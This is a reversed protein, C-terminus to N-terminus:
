AFFIPYRSRIETRRHACHPCPQLVSCVRLIPEEDQLLGILLEMFTDLREWIWKRIQKAADNGGPSLKGSSIIVVFVRYLSYIIKSLDKPDSAGQALNLLDLLANLSTNNAVAATIQTELEKELSAKRRKAPPPLSGVPMLGVLPGGLFIRQKWM